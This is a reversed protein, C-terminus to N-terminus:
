PLAPVTKAFHFVGVFVLTQRERGHIRLFGMWSRPAEQRRRAGLGIQAIPDLMVVGACSFARGLTRAMGLGHGNLGECGYTLAGAIRYGAM